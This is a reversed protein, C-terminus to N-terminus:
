ISSTGQYPLEDDKLQAELLAALYEEMESFDLHGDDWAKDAAILAKEYSDRDDRIREPIIRRGPLLAESRM